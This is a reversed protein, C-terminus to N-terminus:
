ERERGGEREGEGAEIASTRARVRFRARRVCVRASIPGALRQGM